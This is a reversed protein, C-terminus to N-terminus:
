LSIRCTYVYLFSFLVNDQIIEAVVLKSPIQVFIMIFKISLSGFELPFFTIGNITFLNM